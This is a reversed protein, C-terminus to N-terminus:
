AHSQRMGTTLSLGWRNMVARGTDELLGVVMATDIGSLGLEQSGLRLVDRWNLPLVDADLSQLVAVLQVAHDEFQTKGAADGM